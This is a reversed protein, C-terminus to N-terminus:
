PPTRLPFLLLLLSPFIFVSACVAAFWLTELLSEWTEVDARVCKRAIALECRGIPARLHVQDM